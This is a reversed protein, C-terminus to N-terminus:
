ARRRWWIVGGTVLFIVPLLVVTGLFIALAEGAPVYAQRLPREVFSGTFGGIREVKVAVAHATSVAANRAAAIRVRRTM